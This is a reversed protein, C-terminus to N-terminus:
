FPGVFAPNPADLPGPRRLKALIEEVPLQDALGLMAIVRQAVADAEPYYSETLAPATPAPYDPLAIRIPACKLSSFAEEAVRAVVEGAVGGTLWGTDLVALAGTKRVSELLTPFDMPRVSRMDIVEADVGYEALVEAAKLAELAMYSFAALTVRTGPRMVRARHLSLRFPAEAVFGKVMHLWRHELILVPDPDDLAALLLGKADAATVPMVVKLGPLHAFLAQPSQAHQPGQGWGRGIITRIVLPVTNQGQFLHRWKSGQNVLQDMALFIFDVRQHTMLPKLGAIAAGICVGTLGNESLPMDLVREGGFRERLGSTTGFIGKPDPVGEGIIFVTPDAAMAQVTAERLADAQTIARNSPPAPPYDREAAWVHQSATAPDPEPSSLAFEFAAAIEAATEQELRQILSEVAEPHRQGLLEQGRILPCRAQWSALEGKPRYGLHDDDNPGCHEPWRYTTFELFRPGNGERIADIAEGALEWVQQIDNGEGLTGPIGHAQAIGLIPRDPQRECLRTYVSYGNNECVFLLPLRRLAAFNMVEHLVGEEFCGDGFFIVSVRNQRLYKWAFAHGAAIPVTGGVIPTAGLFGAKKDILHMSGGRGGCCGTAKGYLEAILTPLSGGKALYHGHARHNSFVGDQPTLHDCVGSAVAEQGICLHTPCRMKQDRYRTAITEEARRIRLMSHYLHPLRAFFTSM